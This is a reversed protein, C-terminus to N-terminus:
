EQGNSEPKPPKPPKLYPSGFTPQRPPPAPKPPPEPVSVPEPEPEPQALRSGLVEVVKGGKALDVWLDQQPEGGDAMKVVKCRPAEFLDPSRVGSLVVVLTGDALRLVSGPPYAGMVNIFIQFLIPDYGDGARAAMLSLADAPVHGPQGGDRHRTLADYDDAIHIIRSHLSGPGGPHDHPLHHEMMVLLRRIRAEHFGRQRLLTRLGAKSHNDFSTAEGEDLTCYGVDHVMAAVGLDALSADPLGAARGILISLNAVMLSHRAFSPASTDVEFAIRALDKGETVDILDNIIRRVPLQNPLRNAELNAFTDAVVEVSAEYVEAVTRDVRQDESVFRFTPHLEVSSLGTSNLQEQIATRARNPDPSSAFLGLATRVQKRTLEKFYTLGGVNHRRLMQELAQAHEQNVDFRVRIDNVYVQDEVCVLSVPGLLDILCKLTHRFEEVPKELAENTVDHIRVLQLLGYNIHALKEGLERVTRALARDEVLRARRLTRGLRKQADRIQETV